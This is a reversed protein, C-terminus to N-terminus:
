HPGRRSARRRAKYKANRERHCERCARGGDADHKKTNEPTFEHGNVCHTKRMNINGTALSREELTNEPGTIARLHDPNICNRVRCEHDVVLGDPIPGKTLEYAVQHVGRNVGDFTIRGYGDEVTYGTWVQCGNEVPLSRSVLAEDLRDTSHWPNVCGPTGCLRTLRAKEPWRGRWLWFLVVGVTRRRGDVDIQHGGIQEWCGSEAIKYRHDVVPPGVRKPRGMDPM